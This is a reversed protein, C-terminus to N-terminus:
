MKKSGELDTDPDSDEGGEVDPHDKFVKQM